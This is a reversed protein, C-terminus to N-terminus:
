WKKYIFYRSASYNFVMAVGAGVVLPLIPISKLEPFAFVVLSFIALNLFAGVVQISFYGVYESRLSVFRSNKGDDFTHKRNLYWTVTLALPFSVARSLYVDVGQSVLMTLVLAEIAFGIAGVSVFSLVETIIKRDL